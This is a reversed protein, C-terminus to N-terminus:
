LVSRQLYVRHPNTYVAAVVFVVVVELAAVQLPVPVLPVLVMKHLLAVLPIRVVM